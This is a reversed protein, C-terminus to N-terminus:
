HFDHSPPLPHDPRSTPPLMMLVSFKGMFPRPCRKFGPQLSSHITSLSAKQIAHYSSCGSHKSALGHVLLLISGGDNLLHGLLRINRGVVRM